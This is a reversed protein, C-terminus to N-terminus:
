KIRRVHELIELVIKNRSATQYIENKVVFKIDIIISLVAAPIILLYWWSWGAKDLFLYLIMATNVYYFYNRQRDVIWKLKGLNM